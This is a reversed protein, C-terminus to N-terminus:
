FQIFKVETRRRLLVFKITIDSSVLTCLMEQKNKLKGNETFALNAFAFFYSRIIVYATLPSLFHLLKTSNSYSVIHLSRPSQKPRCTMNFINTM